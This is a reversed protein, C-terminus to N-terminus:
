AREPQGVVALAQGALAAAASTPACLFAALEAVDEDSPELADGDVGGPALASVAVGRPALERALARVLAVVGAREARADAWGADGFRMPAGLVAVLRGGDAICGRAAAFAARADALSPAAAVLADLGGFVERARAVAREPEGAVHRAKGAANAIEGVVEALAREDAGAVVVSAGRAALALAIARGTASAAGTVVAVRGELTKM